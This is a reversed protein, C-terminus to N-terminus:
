LPSCQIQLDPTVPLTNDKQSLQDRVNLTITMQREDSVLQEDSESFNTDM